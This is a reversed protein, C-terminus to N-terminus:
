KTLAKLLKIKLKNQIGCQELKKTYQSGVNLCQIFPLSGNLYCSFFGAAVM